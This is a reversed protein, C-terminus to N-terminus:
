PDRLNGNASGLDPPRYLGLVSYSKDGEKLKMEIREELGLTRGQDFPHYRKYYDRLCQRGLEFYHGPTIGERVVRVNANWNKEWEQEYYRLLDELSALKTLKLDKYLKELTEHVRKGVFAEVGESDVRLNEVYRFKYKRPCTEFTDIRSNSYMRFVDLRRYAPRSPFRAGDPRRRFADSVTLTIENYRIDIDPHHDMGEATAAVHNVFAMAAVFDSFKYTRTIEGKHLKWGRLKKLRQTVETKTLRTPKMSTNEVKKDDGSFAMPPGVNVCVDFHTVELRGCGRASSLHNNRFGNKGSNM